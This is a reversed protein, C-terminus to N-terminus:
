SRFQVASLKFESRKQDNILGLGIEQETLDEEVLSQSNNKLGTLRTSTTTPRSTLYISTMSSNDPNFHAAELNPHPSYISFM